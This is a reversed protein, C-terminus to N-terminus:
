HSLYVLSCCHGVILLVLKNKKKKNETASNKNYKKRFDGIFVFIAFCNRKRQCIKGFTSFQECIGRKESFINTTEGYIMQNPQLFKHLIKQHRSSSLWSSSILFVMVNVAFFLSNGFIIRLMIIIVVAYVM